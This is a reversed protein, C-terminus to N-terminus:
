RGHFAQKQRLMMMTRPSESDDLILIVDEGLQPQMAASM